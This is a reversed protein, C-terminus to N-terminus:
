PERAEVPHRSSRQDGTPEGSARSRGTKWGPEGKRLPLPAPRIAAWAIARSRIRTVFLRRSNSRTGSRRASFQAEQDGEKGGGGSGCVKLAHRLLPVVIELVIVLPGSPRWSRNLVFVWDFVVRVFLIFLYLRLIDVIVVAVVNM